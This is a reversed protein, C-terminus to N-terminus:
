NGTGLEETELAQLMAGIAFTEVRDVGRALVDRARAPDDCEYVALQRGPHEIPGTPPLTDIDCLWWQAPLSQVDPRHRDSWDDFVAGTPFTSRQRVQQLAELDYSIIVCRDALAKLRPLVAALVPEIGFYGLSIRKLEVFATVDPIGALWQVFAELTPIPAGAGGRPHRVRLDALEALSRDHVPGEAACLRSLERDHFLVPIGDRTLQVDTEIATAGLAVADRMAPLTNEPQEAAHGRHAVLRDRYASM